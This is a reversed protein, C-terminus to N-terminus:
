LLCFCLNIILIQGVSIVMIYSTDEALCIDCYRAEQVQADAHLKFVQGVTAYIVDGHFPTMPLFMPKGKGVECM